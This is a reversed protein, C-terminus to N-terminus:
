KKDFFGNIFDKINLKKGNAPTLKTIMLQENEYNADIIKIILSEKIGKKIRYNKFQKLNLLDSIKVTLLPWPNYAKIKRFIVREEEKLNSIADEKFIFTYKPKTKSYTYTAQNHNQSVPTIKGEVYQKLINKIQKSTQHFLFEYAEGSNWSEDLNFKAQFVTDGEDLKASVLHYTIGYEKDDELIAFQVASAGRHKPLLSFHINIFKYEPLNFIEEPIIYGFDFSLGLEIKNKELSQMIELKKEKTLKEIEIYQINNEIAFKKAENPTPFKNKGIVKDTKTVILKLQDKLASLTEITRSSTTFIAINIM